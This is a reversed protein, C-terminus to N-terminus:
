RDKSDEQGSSEKGEAKRRDVKGTCSPKSEKRNKKDNFRQAKEFAENGSKESTQSCRYNREGRKLAGMDNRIGHGMPVDDPKPNIGDDKGQDGSGEGFDLLGLEFM